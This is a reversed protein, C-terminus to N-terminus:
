DNSEPRRRQKELRRATIRVQAAPGELLTWVEHTPSEHIQELLLEAAREPAVLDRHRGPLETVVNRVSLREVTRVTRKLLGCFVGEDFQDASGAGLLLVKDFPLAPGGQTLLIEGLEARFFGSQIMRSVLGASRWDFLGAVGHPPREDSFVSVVLLEQGITDLSPLDPTAFRLEM